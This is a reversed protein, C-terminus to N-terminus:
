SMIIHFALFLWAQLMAGPRAKQVLLLPYDHVMREIQFLPFEKKILIIKLIM